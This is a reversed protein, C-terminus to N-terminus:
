VLGSENLVSYVELRLLVCGQVSLPLEGELRSETMYVKRPFRRPIDSSSASAVAQTKRSSFITPSLPHEYTFSTDVINSDYIRTVVAKAFDPNECYSCLTEGIWALLLPSPAAGSALCPLHLRHLSRSSSQAECIVLV